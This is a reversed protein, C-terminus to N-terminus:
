WWRKGAGQALKAQQIPVVLHLRQQPPRFLQLRERLAQRPEIPSGKRHGFALGPHIDKGLPDGVAGEMKVGVDVSSLRWRHGGHQRDDERGDVILGRCDGEGQGGIDDTEEHVVDPEPGPFGAEGGHDGAEFTAGQVGRGWGRSGLLGTM